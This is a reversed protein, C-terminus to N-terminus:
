SPLVDESVIRVWVLALESWNWGGTERTRVLIYMAVKAKKVEKNQYGNIALCSM